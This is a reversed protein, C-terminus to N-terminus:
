LQRWDLDPDRVASALIQKLGATWGQATSAEFEEPNFQVLGNMAADPTMALYWVTGGGPLDHTEADEPLPEDLGKAGEAIPLTMPGGLSSTDSILFQAMRKDERPKIYHPFTQELLGAPLENAMADIFTDRTALVVDRFSTCDAIKTRFPLVNLFLGMTNHFALENRGATVSDITLDTAGTIRNVLIYIASLVVVFPTSRTASALATTATMTDADVSFVHMSYPKSYRYPHGHDTPMVFERAGDLKTAWYSLAGDDDTSGANARQWEVYERYQHMEALKPAIGSVRAEYFAGLDRLLVGVSWGDSVSHHVTMFLASDRDDFQCLLAHLLPVERASVKSSEAEALLEQILKSRSQGTATPLNRVELPVQCPPLVMQYPPDADRVVLTRLLEHRAIVDDLAGQLATLDVRGTIRLAATILYRSSFPGDDDGKDMTVFWEQTFSLPYREADQDHAVSTDTM